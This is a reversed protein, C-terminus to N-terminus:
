SEEAKSYENRVRYVEGIAGLARAKGQEDGVSKSAELSQRFYEQATLTVGNRLEIWGLAHLLGSSRTTALGNGGGGSPIVPDMFSLEQLCRVAPPRKNAELRLCEEMLSCLVKIQDFEANGKISPLDRTVIRRIAEINNEEEFPFNGTVAEWCIWGFAWIDSGLGPLEGKLLEPAAWRITWAPGTMTIFEGSAAIEATLPEAKPPGMAVRHERKTANQVHDDKMASDVTRASGFDTIIARNKSNVLINLSKLDGHCIPPNRGHLYSLGTAVDSILSIREPLEWSEARVFERLNGNNEWRFVMWAVGRDVDEVFGLIRVVNEHSLDNLLGVERAFPGLARDQNIEKDFRLKKVAVYETVEPESTSPSRSSDLIAVEVDATGGEKSAHSEIPKIQARDIRLHSLSELVKRPCIRLGKIEVEVDDTSAEQANGSRSAAEKGNINGSM